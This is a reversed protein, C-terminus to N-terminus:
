PKPIPVEWLPVRNFPSAPRLYKTINASSDSLCRVCIRYMNPKTFWLEEREYMYLCCLSFSLGRNGKM